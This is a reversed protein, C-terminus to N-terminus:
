RYEDLRPRLGLYILLILIVTLVPTVFQIHHIDAFARETYFSMWNENIKLWRGLAQDLQFFAWNSDGPKLSMCFEVAKAHQGSNELERIQSDLDHYMGFTRLTELSQTPEDKLPDADPFTINDMARKLAGDFNVFVYEQRAVAGADVATKGSKMLLAMRQNRKKAVEVCNSYTQEGRFNILKRSYEDFVRGHEDQNKRDLLWRSEAANAEYSNARADLLALVSGYSDEKMGKLDSSSSAFSSSAYILFLLTMASAAVLQINLQRRFKLRLYYQTAILLAIAALGSVTIMAQMVIASTKQREWTTQLVQDNAQNLADAAPVLEQKLIRYSKRYYNILLSEDIREHALRASQATMLFRGLSDQIKQIPILEADGYTINKAAAILSGGIDIRAKEFDKQWEQGKGPPLLLENCLDADLTEIYIKIRHAAVVSPAADLGLTKISDQQQKWASLVSLCLLVMLLSTGALALRLIHPTTAHRLYSPLSLQSTM